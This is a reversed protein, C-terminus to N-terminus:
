FPLDLLALTGICMEDSTREGYAVDRPPAAMGDFAPQKAATNDWECTTEIKDGPNARVPRTFQYASQWHFDWAPIRLLCQRAGSPRVLEMKFSKGLLHMHAWASYIYGERVQGLVPVALNPLVEGRVSRVTSPAGAPILFTTDSHYLTHPIETIFTTAKWLTVTSQDAGRGNGFNYHNQLVLQWGAPMYFGVTARPPPPPSDYGPVWLGVPYAEAIGAGSFCTYGPGPEKADLTKIAAVQTDPVMYVAAHHMIARNGPEVSIASVGIPTALKPDILFCRYDDSFKLASTYSEPMLYRDSPPGLSRAQATNQRTPPTGEPAGADLWRQFTQREEDPMARPDDITPCDGDQAPPLPPMRRAMVASVLQQARPGVNQWGDLSFPGIRGPQHCALCRREILPAIAYHYTLPGSEDSPPEECGLMGLLSLLFLAGLTRSSRPQSLM